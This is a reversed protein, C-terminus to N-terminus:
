AWSSTAAAAGAGRAGDAVFQRKPLLKNLRGVARGVDKLSTSAEPLATTGSRTWTSSTRSTPSAATPSTAGPAFVVRDMPLDRPIPASAADRSFSQPRCQLLYLEKGDSAFEIDM